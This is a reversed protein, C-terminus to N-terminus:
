NIKNRNNWFVLTTILLPIVNFREDSSGSTANAITGLIGLIIFLKLSWIPKISKKQLLRIYVITQWIIFATNILYIFRIYTPFSAFQGGAARTLAYDAGFVVGVVLYLSWAFSAFVATVFIKNWM